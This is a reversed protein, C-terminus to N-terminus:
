RCLHPIERLGMFFDLATLDCSRLPWNIDECRSNLQGPFTEQLLAMNARTTRCSAVDQQFQLFFDTIM